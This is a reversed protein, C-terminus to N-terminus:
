VGSTLIVRTVVVDVALAKVAQEAVTRQICKGVLAAAVEFEQGVTGLITRRAKKRMRFVAIIMYHAFIGFDCLKGISFWIFLVQKM